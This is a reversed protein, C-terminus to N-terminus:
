KAPCLMPPRGSIALRDIINKSLVIDMDHDTQNYGEIAPKITYQLDDYIYGKDDQLYAVLAQNDGGVPLLQSPVLKSSYKNLEEGVKGEISQYPNGLKSAQVGLTWENRMANGADKTLNDFDKVVKYECKLNEDGEADETICKMIQDGTKFSDEVVKWLGKTGTQGLIYYLYYKKTPMSKGETNDLKCYDTDYLTFEMSGAWGFNMTDKPFSSSLVGNKHATVSHSFNDSLYSKFKDLNEKHDHRALHWSCHIQMYNYKDYDIVCTPKSASPDPNEKYWSDHINFTVPPNIQSLQIANNDDDYVHLYFHNTSTSVNSYEPSNNSELAENEIGAYCTSGLTCVSLAIIFKLKNM